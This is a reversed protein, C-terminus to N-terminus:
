LLTPLTSHKQSLMHTTCGALYQVKSHYFKGIIKLKDTSTTTNSNICASNQHPFTFSLCLDYSLLLTSRLFMPLPQMMRISTALSLPQHHAKSFVTIFRRTGYFILFKKVPQSLLLKELLVRSHPTPQKTPQM